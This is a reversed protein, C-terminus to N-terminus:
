RTLATSPPATTAPCATTAARGRRQGRVPTSRRNAAPRSVASRDSRARTRSRHGAPPRRRGGTSAARAPAPPVGAAPGPGHAPEVEDDLRPLPHQQEAGGAGALRRQQVGEGAHEAAVLLALLLARQEDVARGGARPARGRRAPAAPGPSAPSGRGPRRRRRRRSRSGRRAGRALDPRPHTRASSATPSSTGSSWGVVAEGAPLLLPEGQGAHQRHPRPQHQEVLRGGVEVGLADGLDAVGHGPHRLVPAVREDHLVAHRGPQRHHVADDHEPGSPRAPRRGARGLHEGPRAPAPRPRCRPGPGGAAGAARRPRRRARRQQAGLGEGDAPRPRGTREPTSRSAARGARRDGQGAAVARALGGEASVRAPSSSGSAPRTRAGGRAPRAPQPGAADTSARALQDRADPM